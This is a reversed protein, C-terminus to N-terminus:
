IFYSLIIHIYDLLSQFLFYGKLSCSFFHKGDLWPVFKFHIELFEELIFHSHKNTRGHSDSSVPQHLCVAPPASEGTAAM